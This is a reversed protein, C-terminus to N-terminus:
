SILRRIGPIRKLVATMAGCIAAVALVEIAYELMRPLPAAESFAGFARVLADSHLVPIHLLYAGFSLAALCSVWAGSRGTAESEGFVARGTMMVALGLLPMAAATYPEVKPVWTRYGAFLYATSSGLFAHRDLWFTDNLYCLGYINWFVTFGTMLATLILKIILRYDFKFNRIGKIIGKGFAKLLQGFNQPFEGEETLKEYSFRTYPEVDERVSSGTDTGTGATLNKRIYDKLHEDMASASFHNLMGSEPTGLLQEYEKKGVNFFVAEEIQKGTVNEAPFAVLQFEHSITFGCNQGGEESFKKIRKLDFDRNIDKAHVEERIQSYVADLNADAFMHVTNKQVDQVVAGYTGRYWFLTIMKYSRYSPKHLTIVAKSHCMLSLFMMMEHHIHIEEKQRVFLYHKLAREALEKLESESLNKRLLEVDCLGSVHTVKHKMMFTKLVLIFEDFAATKQFSISKAAM